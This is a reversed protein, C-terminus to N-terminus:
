EYYHPYLEKHDEIWEKMEIVMDEYSPVMFTFDNRNNILSKDVSVKESPLIIIADNKM